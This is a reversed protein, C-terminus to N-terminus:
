ESTYNRAGLALVEQRALRAALTRGKDTLLFTGAPFKHNAQLLRRQQLRAVAGAAVTEWAGAPSHLRYVKRGDLYRHSKLTWGQGVAGLIRKEEQGSRRVNM